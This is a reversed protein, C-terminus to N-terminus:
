FCVKHIQRVLHKNNIESTLRPGDAAPCRKSTNVDLLHKLRGVSESLLFYWGSVGQLVLVSM